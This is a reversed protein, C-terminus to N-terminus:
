GEAICGFLVVHVIYIESIKHAKRRRKEGLEFARSLRRNQFRSFYKYLGCDVLLIRCFVPTM